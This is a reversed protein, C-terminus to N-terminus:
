REAGSRVGALDAEPGVAPGGVRALLDQGAHQRVQLAGAGPRDCLILGPAQVPMAVIPELEGTDGGARDGERALALVEVDGGAVERDRARPLQMADAPR